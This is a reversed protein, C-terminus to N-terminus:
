LGSTALCQSDSPKRIWFWGRNGVVARGHVPYYNPVVLLGSYGEVFGSFPSANGQRSSCNPSRATCHFRRRGTSWGRCGCSWRWSERSAATRDSYQRSESTGFANKGSTSTEDASRRLWTFRLCFSWFTARFAGLREESSWLPRRHCWRHLQSGCTFNWGQHTLSWFGFSPWPLWRSLLFARCTEGRYASPRSGLASHCFPM